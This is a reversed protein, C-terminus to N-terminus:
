ITTVVSVEFASEKSVVCACDVVVRQAGSHNDYIEALNPFAATM